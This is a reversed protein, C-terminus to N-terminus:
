AAELRGVRSSGGTYNPGSSPAWDVELATANNLSAAM